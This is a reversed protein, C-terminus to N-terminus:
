EFRVSWVNGDDRMAVCLANGSADIAIQPGIMHEQDDGAFTAAKTWGAATYRSWSLKFFMTTQPQSWVALANGNPDIAIQPQLAPRVSDNPIVTAGAWGSGVVYRSAGIEFTTAGDYQQWVAIGNGHADIAVQPAEHTTLGDPGIREAIGWGSGPAYRNSWVKFKQLEFQLWVALASGDANMAIRAHFTEGTRSELLEPAGWGTGPVYRSALINTNAGDFQQWVALARGSADIAVRPASAQGSDSELLGPGEWGTGAVYRNYWINFRAGDYQQWVVVANGNPDIAVQPLIADGVDDFEILEATGWGSGPTYSIARVSGRISETHQWVAIAHGSGNVAIQPDQASGNGTEILEATGWGSGATYRKFGIRPSVGDFQEWVALAHGSADFSVVPDTAPENSNGNGLPAPTKWQGDGTTFAVTVPAALTEGAAGRLGTGVNLTYEALPLLGGNPTVTLDQGSVSAVIAHNGAVSQLSITSSNATAADLSASFTLVPPVLRPAASAGTAPTSSSLSLPTTTCAIAVNTVDASSVTGTGNSVTCVQAPTSPQTVVTVSYATGNPLANLLAVSGNASVTVDTSNARLMLGSGSLGTVSGGIAFTPPPPPTNNGGGGGGGGGCATIGLPALVAVAWLAVSARLTSM